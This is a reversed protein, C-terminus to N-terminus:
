RASRSCSKGCRADGQESIVRAISWGRRIRSYLKDRPMGLRAAWDACCLTVGEHTLWKITRSNRRQEAPTAWRCNGPEYGKAGDLRDLTTGPPREGMDALFTAFSDWRAHVTVGAGGYRPYSKNRPNRCRDRAQSWSQYTPSCGKVWTHGHRHNHHKM